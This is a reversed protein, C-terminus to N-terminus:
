VHDSSHRTIDKIDPFKLPQGHMLESVYDNQLTILGDRSFIEVKTKTAVKAATKAGEIYIFDKPQALVKM